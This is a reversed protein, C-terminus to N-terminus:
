ASAIAVQKKTGITALLGGAFALVMFIAVLTGGLIAGGLASLMLLAGPVKSKAGMAVAGLIIAIFSFLLGGWGLGVVTNAGDAEVAKAVGGFLLTIGAAIVGFIGAILGIIGGAKQM